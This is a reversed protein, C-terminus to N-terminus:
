QPLSLPRRPLRVALTEEVCASIMTSTGRMLRARRERDTMRSLTRARIAVTEAAGAEPAGVDELPRGVASLTTKKADSPM